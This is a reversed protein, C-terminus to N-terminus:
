CTQGQLCGSEVSDMANEVAADRHLDVVSLINLEEASLVKFLQEFKAM